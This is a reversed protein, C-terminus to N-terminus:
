CKEETFRRSYCKGMSVFSRNLDVKESPLNLVQAFIGRLSQVTSTRDEEESPQINGRKIADYDAMIRKHTADDATELWTTVRKRNLKGSVLMPLKKVVAWTQPVMYVPLQTELNKQIAVLEHFAVRAFSDRDIIECSDDLSLNKNSPLSKLTLVAVLRKQLPGAKPLIVVAHHIRPDAQLRREIEGLEMRQGQLKVQYDKRGLYEISGDHNYRVLDGSKYIRRPSPLSRPFHEM